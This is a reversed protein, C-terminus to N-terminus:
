AVGAARQLNPLVYLLTVIIVWMGDVFHWYLAANHLPRHPARTRPGLQPLSAAYGLMLLGLVLHVGHISTITYFISGYSDTTPLLKKLHDRYELAQLALFVVGLLLTVLVAARALRDNGARAKRRGWEVIGSSVLLVALMTFALALKPPDDMPWRPENRGLYFYAFFLAVFLMGETVIFLYMSATGRRDDWGLLAVPTGVVASV